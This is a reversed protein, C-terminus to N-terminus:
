AGANKDYPIVSRENLAELTLVSIVVTGRTVGFCLIEATIATKAHMTANAFLFVVKSESAGQTSVISVTTKFANQGVAYVAPSSTHVRTGYATEYIFQNVTFNNLIITVNSRETM